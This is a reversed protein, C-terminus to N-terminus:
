NIIENIIALYGAIKIAEFISIYFPLSKPFDEKEKYEKISKYLLTGPILFLGMESTLDVTRNLYDKLTKKKPNIQNSIDEWSYVRTINEPLNEKQNWPYNYLLVNTGLLAIDEAFDLCDEVMLEIGVDKCIEKKSKANENAWGGAFHIGSIIKPFYHNVWNETKTQIQKPRSTIIHLEHSNYLQNLVKQSDPLPQISHFLQHDYFKLVKELTEEKTGGWLEELGYSNVDEKSFNTGYEQNHFEMIPDILNGLVEDVDLGIKMVKKRGGGGLFSFQAFM